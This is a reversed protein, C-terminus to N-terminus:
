GLKSVDVGLVKAAAPKNGKCTHLVQDVYQKEQGALYEALTPWNKLERLRLPLQASTVVRTETTGAIKLVVQTLETINGPWHYAGMVGLADDTFEILKADFHPNLARAAYHKVLAPIDEARDRLPPLQVPLSAV